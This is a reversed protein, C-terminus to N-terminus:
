LPPTVGRDPAKKSAEPAAMKKKSDRSRAMILPLARQLPEDEDSGGPTKPVM